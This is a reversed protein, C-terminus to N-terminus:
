LLVHQKIVFKKLVNYFGSWKGLYKPLANKMTGIFINLEM